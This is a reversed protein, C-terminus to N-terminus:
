TLLIRESEPMQKQENWEMAIEGNSPAEQNKALLLSEAVDCEVKKLMCKKRHM